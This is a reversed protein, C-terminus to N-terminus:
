KTEWSGDLYVKLTDGGTTDVFMMPTKPHKIEGRIEISDAGTFSKGREPYLLGTIMEGDVRKEAKINHAQIGGRFNGRGNVDLRNKISVEFAQIRNASIYPVVLRTLKLTALRDGGYGAAYIYNGDKTIDVVYGMDTNKWAGILKPNSKDRIDLLTVTNGDECGILIHDGLPYCTSPWFLWTGDKIKSIGYISDAKAMNLISVSNDLINPVIGYNGVIWMGQPDPTYTADKYVGSLKLNKPDQIDIVLIQSDNYSGAYLRTGRIDLDRVTSLSDLTITDVVVPNTPDKVDFTAISNNGACAVFAYGGQVALGRSDAIIGGKYKGALSVNEPKTIDLIILEDGGSYYLYNGARDSAKINVTFDFTDIPVPIHSSIDCVLVAASFSCGVFLYDGVIDLTKPNDMISDPTEARTMVDVEFLTFYEMEINGTKPNITLFQEGVSTLFTWGENSIYQRSTPQRGGKREATLDLCFLM